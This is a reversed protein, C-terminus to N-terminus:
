DMEEYLKRYLNYEKIYLTEQWEKGAKDYGLGYGVCFALLLPSGLGILEIM